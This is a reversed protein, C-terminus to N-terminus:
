NAHWRTADFARKLLSGAEIKEIELIKEIKQNTSTTGAQAMAMCLRLGFKSRDELQM